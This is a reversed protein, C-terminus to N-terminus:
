ILYDLPDNVSPLVSTPRPCTEPLSFYVIM